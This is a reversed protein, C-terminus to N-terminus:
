RTTAAWNSTPAPSTVHPSSAVSRGAQTSGTFSVANVDPHAVMASGLEGGGPLVHLLGPPLGAEEFVRAIVVGGTVPTRPDPKLIV